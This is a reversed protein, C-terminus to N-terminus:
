PRIESSKGETPNREGGEMDVPKQHKKGGPGPLRSWTSNKYVKKKALTEEMQPVQDRTRGNTKQCMFRRHAKGETTYWKFIPNGM